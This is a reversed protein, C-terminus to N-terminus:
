PRPQTTSAGKFTRSPASSAVNEFEGWLAERSALKDRSRVAEQYEQRIPRSRLYAQLALFFSGFLCCIGLFIRNTDPNSSEHLLIQAGLYLCVPEVYQKVVDTRFNLLYALHYIGLLRWVPIWLPAPEGSSDLHSPNTIRSEVLSYWFRLNALLYYTAICSFILARPEKLRAMLSTVSPTFSEMWIEFSARLSIIFDLFTPPFTIHPIPRFGGPTFPGIYASTAFRFQILCLCLLFFLSSLFFKPYTFYKIGLKGRLFVHFPLCMADLIYGGVSSTPLERAHCQKIERIPISLDNSLM